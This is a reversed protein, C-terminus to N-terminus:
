VVLRGQRAVAFLEPGTIGLGLTFVNRGGNAQSTSGGDRANWSATESIQSLFYETLM